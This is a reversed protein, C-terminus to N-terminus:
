RPLIPATVKKIILVSQNGLTGELSFSIGIPDRFARENNEVGLELEFQVTVNTSNALEFKCYM